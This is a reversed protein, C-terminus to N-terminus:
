YVRKLGQVAMRYPGFLCGGVLQADGPALFQHAIVHKTKSLGLRKSLQTIVCELAMELHRQYDRGRQSV